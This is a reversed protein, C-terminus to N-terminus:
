GQLPNEIKTIFVLVPIQTIFLYMVKLGFAEALRQPGIIQFVDFLCDPFLRGVRHGVQTDILPTEYQEILHESFLAAMLGDPDYQSGEVIGVAEAELVAEQMGLEIDWWVRRGFEGRCAVAEEYVEEEEEVFVVVDAEVVSLERGEEGGRRAEWGRPCVRGKRGRGHTVFGSVYGQLAPQGLPAHRGEPFGFGGEGVEGVEAESAGGGRRGRGGDGGGGEFDGFGAFPSFAGAADLAVDHQGVDEAAGAAAFGAEQVGEEGAGERGGVVWGDLWARGDVADLQGAAFLAVQDEFLVAFELGGDQFVFGFEVVAVDQDVGVVGAVRVAEVVDGGEAGLERLEVIEGAEVHRQLGVEVLRRLPGFHLRVLVRRPQLHIRRQM